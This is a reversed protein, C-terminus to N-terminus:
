DNKRPSGSTRSPKTAAVKLAQKADFILSPKNQDARLDEVEGIMDIADDMAGTLISPPVDMEDELEKLRKIDSAKM